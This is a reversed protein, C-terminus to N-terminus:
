APARAERGARRITDVVFIRVQLDAGPMVSSRLINPCTEARDESGTTKTRPSV